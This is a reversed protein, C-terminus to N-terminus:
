LADDDTEGTCVRVAHEVDVVFIKVGGIKATNATTRIRTFVQSALRARCAV